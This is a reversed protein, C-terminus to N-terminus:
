TPWRDKIAGEVIHLYQEFETPSVQLFTSQAHAHYGALNSITRFVPVRDCMTRNSTLFGPIGCQTELETVKDGVMRRRFNMEWLLGDLMLRVMCAGAKPAKEGICIYAETIIQKLHDPVTTSNILPSEQRTNKSIITGGRIIVSTKHGNNCLYFDPVSIRPNFGSIDIEVPLRCISCTFSVRPPPQAM